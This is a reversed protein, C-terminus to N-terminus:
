STGQSKEASTSHFSFHLSRSLSHVFDILTQLYTKFSIHFLSSTLQNVSGTSWNAFGGNHLVRFVPLEQQEDGTSPRSDNREEATTVYRYLLMDLVNEPYLNKRLIALLNQIDDHFGLWTNNIKFTRDILNKVLGRKYCPPTLSLINTLVRPSILQVNSCMLHLTKTEMNHHLPSHCKSVRLLYKSNLLISIIKSRKISWKTFDNLESLLNSAAEQRSVNQRENWKEKREKKQNTSTKCSSIFM